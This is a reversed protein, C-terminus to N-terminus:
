PIFVNDWKAYKVRAVVISGPASCDGWATCTINGTVGPYDATQLVADRLAKRGILLNNDSGVVAVKRIGELLLRMADYAFAVESSTAPQGYVNAYTEAIRISAPTAINPGVAYVGDAADGARDIYWQSLYYRGGLIPVDAMQSDKLQVTFQMADIPLLPAYILDPRGAAAERLASEYSFQGPIVNSVSTTTGGQGEFQTRFAALLDVTDANNYSIIAVKRAGLENYAFAGAILGEQSSVYSTTLFIERQSVPSTLASAGCSPSIELIHASDLIPAASLCSSSCTMGIVGVTQASGIADRAAQAGGDSSCQPDSMDLSVFFGQIPDFQRAALEAGRRQEIGLLGEDTQSFAIQIRVTQGQPIRVIGWADLPEAQAEGQQCGSLALGIALTCTMIHLKFDKM